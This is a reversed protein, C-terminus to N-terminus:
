RASMLTIKRRMGNLMTKAAHKRPANMQATRAPWYSSVQVGEIRTNSSSDIVADRVASKCDAGAVAPGVQLRGASALRPPLLSCTQAVGAGAEV